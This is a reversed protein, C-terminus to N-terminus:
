IWQQSGEQELLAIAELVSELNAILLDRIYTLSGATREGTLVERVMAQEETEQANM